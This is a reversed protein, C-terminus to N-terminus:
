AGGATRTVIQVQHDAKHVLVGTVAEENSGGVQGPPANEMDVVLDIQRGVAQEVFSAEKGPTIQDGSKVGTETASAQQDTFVEPM